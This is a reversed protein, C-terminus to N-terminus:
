VVHCKSVQVHFVDRDLCINIDLGDKEVLLLTSGTPQWKLLKLDLEERTEPMTNALCIKSWNLTNADMQPQSLTFAALTVSLTITSPNFIISQSSSRILEELNPLSNDIV